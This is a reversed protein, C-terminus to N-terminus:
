RSPSSGALFMAGGDLVRGTKLNGSSIVEKLYEDIMPEFIPSKGSKIMELKEEAVDYCIVNHGKKAFGVAASLGVYGTGIVSVNM